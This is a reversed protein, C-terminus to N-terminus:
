EAAQAKLMKERVRSRGLLDGIALVGALYDALKAAEKSDFLHTTIAAHSPGHITLRKLASSVLSHLLPQGASEAQTILDSVRRGDKGALSVDGSKAAEKVPPM